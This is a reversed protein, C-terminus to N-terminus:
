GSNRWASNNVIAGSRFMAPGITGWPHPCVSDWGTPIAPFFAARRATRAMALRGPHPVMKQPLKNAGFM